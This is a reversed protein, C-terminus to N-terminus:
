RLRHCDATLLVCGKSLWSCLFACTVLVAARRAMARRLRGSTAGFPHRIHHVRAELQVGAACWRNRDAVGRVWPCAPQLAALVAALADGQRYLTPPPARRRWRRM